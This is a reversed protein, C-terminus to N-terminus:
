STLDRGLGIQGMRGLPQQLPLWQQLKLGLLSASFPTESASDAWDQHLGTCPALSRPHHRSPHNRRSLEQPFDANDPRLVRPMTRAHNSILTRPQLSLRRPRHGLVPLYSWLVRLARQDAREAFHSLIKKCKSGDHIVGCKPRRFM